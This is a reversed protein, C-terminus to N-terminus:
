PGVPGAMPGHLPHGLPGHARTGGVVAPPKFYLVEPAFIQWPNDMINRMHIADDLAIDFACLCVIDGSFLNHDGEATAGISESTTARPNYGQTGAGTNRSHVGDERLHHLAVTGSSNIVSASILNLADQQITGTTVTVSAAAQNRIRTRAITGSTVLGLMFDHDNAGSGEDQSYIRADGNQDVEPVCLVCISCSSPDPFPIGFDGPNSRLFHYGETGTSDADLDLVRCSGVGKGLHRNAMAFDPTGTGIETSVYESRQGVSYVSGTPAAGGVGSAQYWGPVVAWICHSGYFNEADFEEVPNPPQREWPSTIM